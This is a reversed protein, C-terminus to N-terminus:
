RAAAPAAAAAEAAFGPGLSLFVAHAAEHLERARPTDGLARSWALRCEALTPDDAAATRALTECAPEYDRLAAALDGGATALDGRLKLVIARHVNGETFGASDQHALTREILAAAQPRDSHALLAEILRYSQRGLLAVALSGQAAYIENARELEAIAEDLRHAHMLGIGLWWHADGVEEHDASRHEKEHALGARADLIGADVDGLGIRAVGRYQLTVTRLHDDPFGAEALRIAEDAHDRALAYERRALRLWAMRRHHTARLHTSAANAQRLGADVLVIADRLQGAEYLCYVLLDLLYGVRPHEPGLLETARTLADRAESTATDPRGNALLLMALNAQTSITEVPAAEPDRTLADLAQHYAREAGASDGARHLAVGYNNLFLWRPLPRDGSRVVVARAVDADHLALEALGLPEALIWIRRSLAESAADDQGSRVAAAIALTLSERAPEPRHAELQAAGMRLHAEAVLPEYGLAQSRKLVRGAHVIARDYSGVDVLSAVGALVERLEQVERGVAPDAPPPVAATLADVDGCGAISPLGAVAWAAGEVISADAGEFATVLADLGALHRDLCATRLDFLRDSQQGGLHRDCAEVRMASWSAAYTDLRPLVRDATDGALRHGSALFAQRVWGGRAPSWVDALDDAAAACAEVGRARLEAVAFGGLGTALALGLGVVLRRRRRTPDRSLADVLAAMSPWRRESRAELGRLVIRHIWGPAKSGPPPPIVAGQEVNDLFEDLTEGEFPLQGHLAEYLAVCFSYLDSRADADGGALIEPAMYAPTGVLAGVQTLRISLISASRGERPRASAPAERAAVERTAAEALALGFDLVKVVGDDGRIINHPKLDRHILGAAHAATLGRGAQTFIEVVEQWPRAGDCCYRDLSEGRVFEMAIFVRGDAEGVEHVTVVNPHSLRAMAQAERKFRLRANDSQLEEAVLVKIAVKRDLEEDFASYVVGMGGHGINELVDYRGIKLRERREFLRDFVRGKIRREVFSDPRVGIAPDVGAVTERLALEAEARPAPGVDPDATKAGGFDVDRPSPDPGTSGGGQV